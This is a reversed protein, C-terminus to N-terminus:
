EHVASEAIGDSSNVLSITYRYKGSPSPLIDEVYEFEIQCSTGMVKRVSSELDQLLHVPPTDAVVLKVIIEDYSKQIIQTKEIWGSNHVVGLFHIFFFPSVIAGDRRIFSDTVRGVVRKLIQVSEISHGGLEGAVARDGIRYRLFPMAYNSLCTVVVEGEDGVECARGEGDVVEVFHTYRCIRLGSHSADEMALDGVERTGYRNFVECQFAEQIEERMFSYLNGASTIVASVGSIANGRENIYEALQYVSDAYAEILVPKRRQILRAYQAMDEQTMRFSNLFIRNRVFNAVQARWGIGGELIDRESGWLKVYPQGTQLGAQEFHFLSTARNLDAYVDDQIFTVPEGTSGGSSNNRWKRRSLDDSQLRGSDNRLSEKTLFPICHFRSLDVESSSSVVGAESLLHRYFPVRAAAHQLLAELRQEQIRLQEQQPLAYYEKLLALNQYIRNRKIYQEVFRLVPARWNM